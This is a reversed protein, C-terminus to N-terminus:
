RLQKFDQKLSITSQQVGNITFFVQLSITLM